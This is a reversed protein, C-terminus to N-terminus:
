QLRGIKDLASATTRFPPLTNKGQATADAFSGHAIATAVALAACTCLAKMASVVSVLLAERLFYIQLLYSIRETKKGTTPRLTQLDLSTSLESGATSTAIECM